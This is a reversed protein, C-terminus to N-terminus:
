VVQHFEYLDKMGCANRGSVTIAGAKNLMGKSILSAKAAEWRDMTIGTERRAESFRYNSVGGYSAKRSRTAILCIMEDRSLDNPPPLMPNIVSAPAIIELYENGRSQILVVIVFGDPIPFVTTHLPSHRFYPADAIPQAMLDSLRVAVYDRKNGEDWTTGHFSTRDTISAWIKKGRYGPFAARIIADVTKDSRELHIM